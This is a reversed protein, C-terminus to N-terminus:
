TSPDTRQQRRFVSGQETVYQDGDADRVSENTHAVTTFRGQRMLSVSVGVRAAGDRALTAVLELISDLAQESLLAGALPANAPASRETAPIDDPM